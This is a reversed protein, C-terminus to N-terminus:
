TYTLMIHICTHMYTYVHSQTYAHMYTYTHTHIHTCTYTTLTHRHTHSCTQTYAHTLTHMYTHTSGCKFCTERSVVMLEEQKHCFACVKIYFIISPPDGAKKIIYCQGWSQDLRDGRLYFLRMKM